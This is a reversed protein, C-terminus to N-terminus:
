LQRGRPASKGAGPPVLAYRMNKYCLTFIAFCTEFRSQTRIIYEACEQSM